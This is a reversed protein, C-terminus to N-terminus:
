MIIYRVNSCKFTVITVKKITLVLLILHKRNKKTAAGAQIDTSRLLEKSM